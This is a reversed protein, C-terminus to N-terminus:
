WCKRSIEVRKSVYSVMQTIDLIENAFANKTAWQLHNKKQNPLSNVNVSIMTASELKEFGDVTLDIEQYCAFSNIQLLLQSILLLFSLHMDFDSSAILKVRKVKSVTLIKYLNM